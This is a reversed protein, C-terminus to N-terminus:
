NGIASYYLIEEETAKERPLEKTIKGRSMVLIRDCLALLEPLYSSIFIITNGQKVMQNMLQFIEVKAGVDVGTTPEDFFLIKAKTALWRAVVM